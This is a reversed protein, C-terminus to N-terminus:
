NPNSKKRRTSNLTQRLSHVFLLLFLFIRPAAAATWLLHFCYISFINVALPPHFPHILRALCSSFFFYCYWNVLSMILSNVKHRRVSRWRWCLHSSILHSGEINESSGLQAQRRRRPHIRRPNRQAGIVWNRNQSYIGALWLPSLEAWM